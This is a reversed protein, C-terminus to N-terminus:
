DGDVRRSHRDALVTIISMASQLKQSVLRAPGNMSLWLMSSSGRSGSKGQGDVLWRIHSPWAKPAGEAEDEGSTFEIKDHENEQGNGNKQETQYIVNQELKKRCRALEEVAFKLGPENRKMDQVPDLEPVKSNGGYRMQVLDHLSKRLRQRASIPRLDDPLDMCDKAIRVILPLPVPIPVAEGHTSGLPEPVPKEAKKSAANVSLVVIIQWNFPDQQLLEQDEEEQLWDCPL